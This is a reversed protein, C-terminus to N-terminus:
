AASSSSTPPSTPSGEAAEGGQLFFRLVARRIDRALRMGGQPLTSTDKPEVVLLSEYHAIVEDQHVMFPVGDATEAIVFPEGLRRFEDFTPERLVVRRILGEHGEIPPDIAITTTRPM